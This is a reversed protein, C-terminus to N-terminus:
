AKPTEHIYICEKKINEDMTELTDYHIMVGDLGYMAVMHKIIYEIAHKIARTNALFIGIKAQPVYCTLCLGSMGANAQRAYVYCDSGKIVASSIVSFLDSIANKSDNRIEFQM